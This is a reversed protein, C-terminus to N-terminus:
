RMWCCTPCRGATTPLQEHGAPMTPRRSRCFRRQWSTTAPSKRHSRNLPSRTKWAPSCAAARCRAGSRIDRVVTLMSKCYSRGQHRTGLPRGDYYQSATIRRRSLAYASLNQAIKFYCRAVQEIERDDKGLREFVVDRAGPVGPAAPPRACARAPSAACTPPLDPRPRPHLDGSRCSTPWCKSAASSCARHSCAPHCLGAATAIASLVTARPM